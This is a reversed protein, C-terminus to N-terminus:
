SMCFGTKQLIGYQWTYKMLAM